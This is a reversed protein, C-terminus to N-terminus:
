SLPTSSHLLLNSLDYWRNKSGAHNNACKRAYSRLFCLRLCRKDINGNVTRYTRLVTLISTIYDSVDIVTIRFCAPLCLSRPRCRSHDLQIFSATNWFHSYFKAFVPIVTCSSRRKHCNLICLVANCRIQNIESALSHRYIWFFLKCRVHRLRCRMNIYRKGIRLIRISTLAREPRRNLFHFHKFLLFFFHRIVIVNCILRLDCCVSVFILRFSWCVKNVSVVFCQILEVIFRLSWLLVDSQIKVLCSRHIREANSKLMHSIRVTNIERELVADQRLFCSVAIIRLNCIVLLCVTCIIIRLNILKIGRLIWFHLNNHM